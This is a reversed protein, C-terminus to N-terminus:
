TAPGPTTALKLAWELAGVVEDVVGPATVVDIPFFPFGGLNDGTAPRGTAAEMRAVLEARQTEDAFAPHHKLYRLFLVLKGPGPNIAIPWIDRGVPTHFNLFLRPSKASTGISVFGGLAEARDVLTSVAGLVADGHREALVADFEGRTRSESPTKVSPVASTRGRVVPQYAIVAGDASAHRAVEVGLVEATRLQANLYEIIRILTASLQDAVFLLRIRGASLRTHVEAWFQDEDEFTTGGLFQEFDVDRDVAEKECRRDFRAHLRDASWDIGFSAAYDLMQAVVERRARPDSSRKVEVLVPTGDHTIFLHDLRWNVTGGDDEARIDLERDVLLWRADADSPDLASALVEPNVALMHQFEAESAYGAAELPVLGTPGTTWLTPM